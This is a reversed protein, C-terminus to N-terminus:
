AVITQKFMVLGDEDREGPKEPAVRVQCPSTETGITLEGPEPGDIAKGGIIMGERVDTNDRMALSVFKPLAPPDTRNARLAHAFCTQFHRMRHLSHLPSYHDVYEVKSVPSIAICDDDNHMTKRDIWFGLLMREYVENLLYMKTTQWPVSLCQGHM